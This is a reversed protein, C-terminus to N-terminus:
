GEKSGLFSALGQTALKAEREALAQKEATIKAAESLRDAEHRRYYAYCFKMFKCIGKTNAVWEGDIGNHKQRTIPISVRRCKAKEAEAVIETFEPELFCM